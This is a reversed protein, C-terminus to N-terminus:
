GPPHGRAAVLGNASELASSAGVEDARSQPPWPMGGQNGLRMSGLHIAKGSKVPKPRRVKAFRERAPGSM